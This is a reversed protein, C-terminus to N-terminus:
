VEGATVTVFKYPSLFEQELNMLGAILAVLGEILAMLGAKLAVLGATLAM